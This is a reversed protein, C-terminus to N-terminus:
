KQNNQYWKKAEELEEMTLSHGAATWVTEVNAGRQKLIEVLEESAKATILPDNLGASLFVSRHSISFEPQKNGAPMAHFLIAKHFSNEAQLLANAAINAGNSYGVAIIREFDLQYKKALERTTTILESTKSELDELDLSGDHFRKFFRNAGGEKIDGRLSLVAEDGAIFEAVEVLSKEDGGTGHLLLLPALDKNKGPIYIHEM